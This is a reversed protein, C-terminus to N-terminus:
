PYYGSMTRPEAGKVDVEVRVARFESSDKGSTSQYALLYRSRLEKRSAPMSGPFSAWTTSSTPRVVTEASIRELIKRNAKERFAERLGIAYVIM